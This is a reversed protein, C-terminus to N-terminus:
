NLNSPLHRPSGSNIWQENAFPLTLLGNNPEAKRQELWPCAQRKVLAWSNPHGLGCARANGLPVLSGAIEGKTASLTM